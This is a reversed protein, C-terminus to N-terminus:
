LKKRWNLCFLDNIKKSTLRTRHENLYSHMIVLCGNSRHIPLKYLWSVPTAWHTGVDFIAELQMIQVMQITTILLKYTKVNNETNVTHTKPLKLLNLPKPPKITPQSHNVTNVTNVTNGYPLRHCRHQYLDHWIDLANEVEGLHITTEGFTVQCQPLWLTTSALLALPLLQWPSAIM